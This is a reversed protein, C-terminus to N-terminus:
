FQHVVQTRFITFTCAYWYPFFVNGCLLILVHFSLYRLVTPLVKEATLFYFSNGLMGLFQKRQNFLLSNSSLSLICVAILLFVYLPLHVYFACEKKKKKKFHCQCSPFCLSLVQLPGTPSGHIPNFFSLKSCKSLLLSPLTSLDLWMRGVGLLWQVTKSIVSTGEECLHVAFSTMLRLNCWLFRKRGM